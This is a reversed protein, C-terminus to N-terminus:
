NMNYAHENTPTGVCLRQSSYTVRNLAKFHSIVSSFLNQFIRANTTVIHTKM